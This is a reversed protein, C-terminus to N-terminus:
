NGTKDKPYPSKCTRVVFSFGEYLIDDCRQAMSVPKGFVGSTVFVVAKCLRRTALSKESRISINMIKQSNKGIKQSPQTVSEPTREHVRFVTAVSLGADVATM